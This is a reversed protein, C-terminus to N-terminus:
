NSKDKVSLDFEVLNNLQLKYKIDSRFKSSNVWHTRNKKMSEENFDEYGSMCDCCPCIQYIPYKGDEGWPEFYKDQYGCIRCTNLIQNLM